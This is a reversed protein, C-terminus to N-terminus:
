LPAPFPGPLPAPGGTIADCAGLFADMEEDTGISIRLFDAIRERNFRRALIGRERLAALAAAGSLGPFRIFLFNASSPIVTFRRAELRAATRDRTATIRRCLEDYYPADALAAAAAAQALRDLTYSNFSDRVRRLGEILEEQGLAFGV